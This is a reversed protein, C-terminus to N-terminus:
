RPSIYSITNDTKLIAVLDLADEYLVRHREESEKLREEALVRDTVDRCNCM